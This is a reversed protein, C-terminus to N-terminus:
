QLPDAATGSNRRKRYEAFMASSDTDRHLRRYLLALSYCADASAADGAIALQYEAIADNARDEKELVRALYYHTRALKADYRLSERLCQEAAAADDLRLLLYGLNHPPWPSPQTQARNLVVAKEFFGRAQDLRGQMDWALGLSDWARAAQPDLDVAKQLNGAAEGYRRQFYDIRGLWYWYIATSPHARALDTLIGRAEAENSTKLLAMALTFRDADRARQIKESAQFATVAQAMNGALFSVAGSLALAEAREGDNAPNIAALKSEVLSFNKAQLQRVADDGLLTKLRQYIDDGQALLLSAVFFFVASRIVAM